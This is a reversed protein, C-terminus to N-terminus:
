CTGPFDEDARSESVDDIQKISLPKQEEHDKWALSLEAWAKELGERMEKVALEGHTLAMNEKSLLTQKAKGASEVLKDIKAGIKALCEEASMPRNEQTELKNM